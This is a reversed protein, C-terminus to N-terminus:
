TNLHPSSYLRLFSAPAIYSMHIMDTVFLRDIPNGIAYTRKSPHRNIFILTNLVVVLAESATFSPELARGERPM